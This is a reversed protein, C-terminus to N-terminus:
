RLFEEKIENRKGDERFIFLQEGGHVEKARDKLKGNQELLKYYIARLQDEPLRSAWNVSYQKGVYHMMIERSAM